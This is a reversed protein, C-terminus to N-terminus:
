NDTALMAREPATRKAVMGTLWYPVFFVVLWRHLASRVSPSRFSVPRSAFRAASTVQRDLHKERLGFCKLRDDYQRVRLLM